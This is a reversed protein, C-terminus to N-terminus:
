KIKKGKIDRGGQHLILHSTKGSEGKVFTIQAETVKLFFKNKAEPFVEAKPQNTAQIFIQNHETTVTVIFGPKLEYEGLYHKYIKPDVKVVQHKKVMRDWLVNVIKWEGKIKALHLYDVFQICETRVTAIGRYIDLIKVKIGLKDMAIGKGARKKTYEIMKDKTLSRFMIEGSGPNKLFARKALEKHLARDMREVDGTFWGELYDLAAKKVAIKEKELDKGGAASLLSFSVFIVLTFLLFKKM